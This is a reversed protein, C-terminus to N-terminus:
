WPYLQNSSQPGKTGGSNLWIDWQNTQGGDTYPWEDMKRVRSNQTSLKWHNGLGMEQNPTKWVISQLAPSVKGAVVCDVTESSWRVVIMRTLKTKWFPIQIQWRQFNLIIKRGKLGRVYWQLIYCCLNAKRVKFLVYHLPAGSARTTWSTKM